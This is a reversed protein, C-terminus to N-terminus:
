PSTFYPLRKRRRPLLLRVRFEVFEISRTDVDVKFLILKKKKWAGTVRFISYIPLLLQHVVIRLFDDGSKWHWSTTALNAQFWAVVVM